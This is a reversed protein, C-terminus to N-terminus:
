WANICICLIHSIHVLVRCLCILTFISSFSKNLWVFYEIQISKVFKKCFSDTHVRDSPSWGWLIDLSVRTQIFYKYRKKKIGRAFKISNLIKWLKCEAYLTVHINRVLRMRTQSFLTSYLQFCPRCIVIPVM